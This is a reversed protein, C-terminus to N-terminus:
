SLFSLIPIVPTLYRNLPVSFSWFLIALVSFLFALISELNPKEKPFLIILFMIPLFFVFLLGITHGGFFSPYFSAQWFFSIKDAFTEGMGFRIRDQLEFVQPWLPSKFFNNAFPFFPNKFYLYNKLYWPAAIGSSIALWKGLKKLNNKSCILFTLLFIPGAM